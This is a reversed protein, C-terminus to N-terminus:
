EFKLILIEKKASNCVVLAPFKVLIHITKGEIESIKTQQEEIGLRVM